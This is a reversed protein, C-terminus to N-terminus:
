IFILTKSYSSVKESRRMPCAFELTTKPNKKKEIPELAVAYVLSQVTNELLLSKKPRFMASIMVFVNLM